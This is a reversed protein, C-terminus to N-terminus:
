QAPPKTNEIETLVKSVPASGSTTWKDLLLRVSRTAEEMASGPVTDSGASIFRNRQTSYAANPRYPVMQLLSTSARNTSSGVNSDYTSMQQLISLQQLRFELSTSAQIEDTAHADDTSADSHVEDVHGQSTTARVSDATRASVGDENDSEYLRPRPSPPVQSTTHDLDIIDPPGATLPEQPHYPPPGQRIDTGLSQIGRSELETYHEAHQLEISNNYNEIILTKM